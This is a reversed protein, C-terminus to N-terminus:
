EGGLAQFDVKSRAVHYDSVLQAAQKDLENRKALLAQYKRQIEEAKQLANM